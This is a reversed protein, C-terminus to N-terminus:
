ISLFSFNEDNCAEIHNHNIEVVNMKIHPYKLAIVGIKPTVVHGAGVCFISNIKM